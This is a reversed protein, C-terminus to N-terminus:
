RWLHYMNRKNGIYVVEINHKELHAKLQYEVNDGFKEWCEKYKPDYPYPDENLYLSTFKNMVEPKGFAFGDCIFEDMFVMPPVCSWGGFMFIKNDLSDTSSAIKEIDIKVNPGFEFRSRVVIDYDNGSNNVMENCQHMKWLQRKRLWKWKSMDWDELTEYLDEQQVKMDVIQREVPKLCKSIYEQPIKYVIGYTNTNKRWGKGAILYEHVDSSTPLNVITNNKQSVVDSTYVYIDMDNKLFSNKQQKHAKHFAGIQGSYCLAINM